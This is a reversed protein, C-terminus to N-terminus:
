SRLNTTSQLKCNNNHGGQYWDQIQQFHFIYHYFYQIQVCIFSVHEM